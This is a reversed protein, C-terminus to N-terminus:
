LVHKYDKRAEETLTYEKFFSNGNRRTVMSQYDMNHYAALEERFERASKAYGNNNDKCWAIYVKHIAGTTCICDDIVGRPWPRLCEEAFSLVTSNVAQYQTRATSVSDPESFHYGNALVRQLARVCKQVIGEKEAYMKDLLEKDQKEAPIVNPCNVVMIRDYVWQGMDGSFRPLKNMCFWLLGNYVFEFPQQGKFEAFLSDGGTIKKFTKLEDVSLFSMDSSGALRTGYIAGTGFRAEIESLDIGIYNGKGLLRETLSKLQSKGTNGDGVLFLAKKMRWGRVNSICVGMFELLLQALAESGNTLTSLYSDFVPTPIDRDSWKCPIQITSYVDPSHPLLEVSSGSVCLLGNEFNILSEDGNLESQSVYSLESLVLQTAEKVVSMKVLEESYDAIYQIVKGYLMNMDYLVYVGHEYVYRLVTQNGSDRVLLYDMNERIYKALLPASISQRGKEDVKVFPPIEKQQNKRRRYVALANEITQNRYDEREWKERYLASRRFVADILEVDEGTRFAIIACLAIDYQSQSRGDDPYGVDFLMGFKHWNKQSRLGKIVAEAKRDLATKSQQAMKNAAAGSQPKRMYKNMTDRIAETCDKLPKDLIVNGTFVAFRNTLEGIYLELGNSPHHMYYETSLKRKGNKDMILEPLSSINCLGYIHIGSGSVSYETYSDFQHLLEQVMPDNLDRHDIDLFFVNNPIRFGVGDMHQAEVARQAESYTVWKSQYAESTGCAKGDISFPIKAVRGNSEKKRWLLWTKQKKLENITM